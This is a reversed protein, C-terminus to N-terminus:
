SPARPHEASCFNSRPADPRSHVYWDETSPQTLRGLLPVSVRGPISEAWQWLLSAACGRLSSGAARALAEVDEINVLMPDLRDASELLSCAVLPTTHSQTTTAVDIIAAVAARQQARTLHMFLRNLRREGEDHEDLGLNEFCQGVGLAIDKLTESSTSQTRQATALLTIAEFSRAGVQRM